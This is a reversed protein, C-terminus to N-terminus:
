NRPFLAKCRTLETEDINADPLAPPVAFTPTTFDFLDFPPASNADRASLAPLDFRAQVMRVISSHSLVRHSVHNPRSFPSVAIFPVRMGYRTFQAANGASPDPPCAHPPAVHDFFGGNEDYTIFVAASPWAPSAFMASVVDAVFRQGLQVDAPPHEDDGLAGKLLRSEVWAFTPLNGSAADAFFRQMSGFHDPSNKRLKPYIVDELPPKDSYFMWSEGIADLQAYITTTQADDPAADNGTQGFSTSSQAFMRNPWTPGLLASFYRDGIGFERALAYYYPLDTEDYYGMVAQDGAASAIFGNQMGDDSQQAEAVADHAIDSPCYDTTHFIPIPAGSADPNSFDDAAVDADPVGHQPLRQFYGDFSHNEQMVVVFHDIPIDTGHPERADFTTVPLAGASFTCAARQRSLSRSLATSASTEVPERSADDPLSFCGGFSASLSLTLWV